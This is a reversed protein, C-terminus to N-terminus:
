DGDKAVALTRQRDWDRRATSAQTFLAALGEGDGAALLARARALTDRYADLEALLAPRNALAIDRWM